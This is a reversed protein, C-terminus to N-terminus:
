KGTPLKDYPPQPTLPRAVCEYLSTPHGEARVDSAPAYQGTAIKIWDYKEVTGGVVRQCAIPIHRWHLRCYILGNESWSTRM